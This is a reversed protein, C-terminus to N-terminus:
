FVLLTRGVSIPPIGSMVLLIDPASAIVNLQGRLLSEEFGPDVKVHGDWAHHM